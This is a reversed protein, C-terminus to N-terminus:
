VTKLYYTNMNVFQGREERAQFSKSQDELKIPKQMLKGSAALKGSAKTRRFKKIILDNRGIEFVTKSRITESQYIAKEKFRLL